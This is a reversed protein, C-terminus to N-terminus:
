CIGASYIPWPVTKVNASSGEQNRTDGMQLSLSDFCVAEQGSQTHVERSIERQGVKKKKKVRCQM